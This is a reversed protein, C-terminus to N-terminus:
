SINGGGGGVKIRGEKRCAVTYRGGEGSQIENTMGASQQRLIVEQDKEGTLHHLDLM